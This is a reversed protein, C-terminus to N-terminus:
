VTTELYSSLETDKTDLFSFSGIEPCYVVTVTKGKAKKDHRMLSLLKEKDQPIETPLHYKQLLPSLRNAV